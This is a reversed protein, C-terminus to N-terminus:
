DTEGQIQTWRYQKIWAVFLCFLGVSVMLAFAWGDMAELTSDEGLTRMSGDSWGLRRIFAVFLIIWGGLRYILAQKMSPSRWENFAFALGGIVAIWLMTLGYFYILSGM